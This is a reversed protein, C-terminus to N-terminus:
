GLRYSTVPMVPLGESSLSNSQSSTSSNSNVSSKGNRYVTAAEDDPFVTTHPDFAVVTVWSKHGQGRAVVRKESFSWVSVLDDEGGTVVYRGDPSWCVCILGGYYSRATGVMEM